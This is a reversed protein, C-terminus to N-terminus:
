FTKLLKARLTIQERAGYQSRTLPSDAASGNLLGLNASANFRWNKNLHNEFIMGISSEHMSARATFRALGTSAAQDTTVGFFAQLHRASGWKLRIYPVLRAQRSLEMTYGAELNFTEGKTVGSIDTFLEATLYSKYLSAGLFIGGDLRTEIKGLGKIPKPINALRRGQVGRVLAGARWIRNNFAIVGLTGNEFFVTNKWFLKLDLDLNFAYDESGVFDPALVLGAGYRGHWPNKSDTLDFEVAKLYIPPGATNTRVDAARAHTPYLAWLLLILLWIRFVTSLSLM